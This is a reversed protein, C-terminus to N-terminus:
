YVEFRLLVKGTEQRPAVLLNCIAPSNPRRLDFFHILSILIEDFPFSKSIGKSIRQENPLVHSPIFSLTM